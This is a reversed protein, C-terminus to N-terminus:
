STVRGTVQVHYGAHCPQIVVTPKDLRLAAVQQVAIALAADFDDCTAQAATTVTVATTHPEM